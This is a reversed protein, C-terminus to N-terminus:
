KDSLHNRFLKYYIKFNLTYYIDNFKSQASSFGDIYDSLVYRAGLEVGFLTRPFLHYKIGVGFPLVVTFTESDNFRDSDVLNNKAKVSYKLGGAGAFVYLSIPKSIHRLGGRLQMINYFYNRESEPILYFVTTASVETIFTSFAYDRADNRSGADTNAILGLNASGQIALRQNFHYVGGLSIGPRLAKFGIDKIGMLNNGSSSGGIDGFYHNIPFGGFVELKSSKQTQSNGTITVVLLLIVTTIKRM